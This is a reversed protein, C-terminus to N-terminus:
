AIATGFAHQRDGSWRRYLRAGILGAVVMEAAPWLTWIWFLRAPMGILANLVVNPLACSLLWVLGAALLATTAGAGYHAALSAYLWVTLVGLGLTMLAFTM